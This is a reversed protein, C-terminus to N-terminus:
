RLQVWIAFNFLSSMWQSETMRCVGVEVLPRVAIDIQEKAVDIGVYTPEQSM